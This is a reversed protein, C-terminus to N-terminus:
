KGKNWPAAGDGAQGGGNETSEVKTDDVEATQEEVPNNAPNGPGGGSPKSTGAVAPGEYKSYFKIDNSEAYNGQAPTIGLKINLPINHMDVSDEVGEPKGIADCLTKMQKRSITVAQQNENELNYQGFVIRGKYDGDIIKFQVKLLSGVSARGEAKAKTPVIESKIMQVNYNGAPVVSFDDMAEENAANFNLKAM